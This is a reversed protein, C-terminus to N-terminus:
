NKRGEMCDKCIGNINFNCDTIKFGTENEIKNIESKKLLVNVDCVKGCKVCIVHNHDHLTKDFRDNGNEFSVKKIFGEDSLNNLNRYVTGLSINPIIEKVKKHIDKADPHNCSELVIKLIEEKQKSHRM